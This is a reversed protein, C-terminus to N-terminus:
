KPHLRTYLILTSFWTSFSCMGIIIGIAARINGYLTSKNKSIVVLAMIGLIIGLVSLSIGVVSSSNYTPLQLYMGFFPILLAVVISCISIIYSAIALKSRRKKEM